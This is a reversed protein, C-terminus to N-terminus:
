SYAYRDCRNEYRIFKRWSNIFEKNILYFVNEVDADVAHRYVLQPRNRDSYLDGLSEKQNVAETKYMDKAVEAESAISQSVICRSTYDPTPVNCMGM